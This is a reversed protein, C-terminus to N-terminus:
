CIANIKEIMSVIYKRQKILENLNNSQKEVIAKEITHLMDIMEEKKDKILYVLMEVITKPANEQLLCTLEQLLSKIGAYAINETNLRM